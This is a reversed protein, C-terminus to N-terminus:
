DDDDDDTDDDTDDAHAPQGAADALWPKVFQFLERYGRGNRQEPAAAADKRAARVLSRLRQLDSGPFEAAWRTLADDNTVLEDRWREAEHLALTDKASGLKFADVAAQLPAADAFRMQKGIFQLQRRQGEFSKTKRYQDIADRLGDPMPVDKLRSRPLAVLAEGLAQLEHAQAKLKTKSPKEFVYADAPEPEPRQRM